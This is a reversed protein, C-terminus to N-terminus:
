HRGSSHMISGIYASDVKTLSRRFAAVVCCDAFMFSATLVVAAVSFALFTETMAPLGIATFDRGKGFVGYTKYKGELAYM